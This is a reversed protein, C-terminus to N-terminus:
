WHQPYTTVWDGFAAWQAVGSTARHAVWSENTPVHHFPFCAFKTNIVLFVFIKQIYTLIIRAVLFHNPCGLKGGHTARHAVWSNPSIWLVTMTHIVLYHWKLERYIMLHSTIDKDIEQYGFIKVAEHTEILIDFCIDPVYGFSFNNFNLCLHHSSLRIKTIHQLIYYWTKNILKILLNTQVLVIIKHRQSM